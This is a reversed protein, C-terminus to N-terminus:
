RDLLRRSEATVSSPQMALFELLLQLIRVTELVVPLKKEFEQLYEGDHDVSFHEPFM